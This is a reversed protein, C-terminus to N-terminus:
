RRRGVRPANARATADASRGDEVISIPRAEDASRCSGRSHAPRHPVIVKGASRGRPACPIRPTTPSGRRGRGEPTVTAAKIGFSGHAGIAPAARTCSASRPDRAPTKQELSPRVSSASTSPRYRGPRAVRLGGEEM